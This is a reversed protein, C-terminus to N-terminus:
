LFFDFCIYDLNLIRAYKSISVKYLLSGLSENIIILVFLSIFTEHKILNFVFNYFPKQFIRELIDGDDLRASLVSERPEERVM